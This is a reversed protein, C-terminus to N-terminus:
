RTDKLHQELGRLRAEVRAATDRIEDVGNLFEDLETRTVLLRSEEQLYEAVNDAATARTRRVWTLAAAGFRALRRAALDGVRRALEEEWDPKAASLLQRYLNAIEADGRV